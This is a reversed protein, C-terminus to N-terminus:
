VRHALFQLSASEVEHARGNAIREHLRDTHYVVVCGMTEPVSLYRSAIERLRPVEMCVGTLGSALRPAPRDRVEPLDVKVGRGRKGIMMANHVCTAPAV